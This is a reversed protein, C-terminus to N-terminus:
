GYVDAEKCHGQLDDHMCKPLSAASMISAHLCGPQCQDLHQYVALPQVHVWQLAEVIHRWCAQHAQCQRKTRGQGAMQMMASHELHSVAKEVAAHIRHMEHLTSSANALCRWQNCADPMPCISHHDPMAREPKVSAHTSTATTKSIRESCVEVVTLM